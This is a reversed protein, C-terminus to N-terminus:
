VSARSIPPSAWSMAAMMVAVVITEKMVMGIAIPRAIGHFEDEGSRPSTAVRLSGSPRTRLVCIVDGETERQANSLEGARPPARLGLMM